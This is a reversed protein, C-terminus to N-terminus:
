APRYHARLTLYDGLGLSRFGTSCEPLAESMTLAGHRRYEVHGLGFVHGFEHTLVGQLDWSSLCDAPPAPQPALFFTGGAADVLIDAEVTHGDDERGEWWICTVALLGTKLRGFSVTSHGDRTDCGGGSTIDAHRDTAGTYAQRITLGEALGCDNRGAAVAAAAETIEARVQDGGGPALQGLYAPVTAANLQWRLERQWGTDLWHGAPDGCRGGVPVPSIPLMAQLYGATAGTGAAPATDPAGTSPAAVAASLTATLATIIKISRIWAGTLM